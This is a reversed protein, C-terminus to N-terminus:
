SQADARQSPARFALLLNNAAMNWRREFTLGARDAADVVRSLRRLGWAPNRRRLDANFSVNGPALPEGEVEYPGYLVLTGGPRLHTAAGRMLAPCTAWDSIHLMNACYMADFRGLLPPWQPALVDLHLPARVNVLGAIREGMPALAEVEADTPQWSWGPHAAAFHAAHQGTGGAIELVTANAPLLSGLVELIPAKNRDAAPSFSM